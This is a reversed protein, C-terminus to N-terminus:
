SRVKWGEAELRAVFALHVASPVPQLKVPPNETLLFRAIEGQKAGRGSPKRAPLTEAYPEYAERWWGRLMKLRERKAALSPHPQPQYQCVSLMPGFKLGSIRYFLTDPAERDTAFEFTTRPTGDLNLDREQFGAMGQTLRPMAAWQGERRGLAYAIARPDTGIADRRLNLREEKLAELWDTYDKLIPTTHKDPALITLLEDVGLYPWPLSGRVDEDFATSIIARSFNEDKM